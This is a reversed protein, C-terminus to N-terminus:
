LLFYLYVFCILLDSFSVEEMGANSPHSSCSMLVNDSFNYKLSAFLGDFVDPKPAGYIEKKGLKKILMTIVGVCEQEVYM